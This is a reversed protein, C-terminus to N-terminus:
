DDDRLVEARICIYPRKTTYRRCIEVMWVHANMTQEDAQDFVYPLWDPGLKQGNEVNIALDQDVENSLVKFLDAVVM